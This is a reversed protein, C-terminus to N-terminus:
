MKTSEIAELMRSAWAAEHSRPTPLLFLCGEQSSPLSVLDVGHHLKQLIGTRWSGLFQCRVSVGVGLWMDMPLDLEKLLLQSCSKTSERISTSIVGIKQIATPPAKPVLPCKLLMTSYVSQPGLLSLLQWVARDEDTEPQKYPLSFAGYRPRSPDQRGGIV